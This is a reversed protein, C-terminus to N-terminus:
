FSKLGEWVWVGAVVLLLAGSIIALINIPKSISVIKAVLERQERAMHAEAQDLFLQDEERNELSHRYIMLVFMVATVVGWVILLYGTLGIQPIEM